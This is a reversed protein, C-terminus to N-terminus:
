ASPQHSGGGGTPSSFISEPKSAQKLPEAPNGPAARRPRRIGSPSVRPVPPKLLTSASPCAPEMSPAQSDAPMQPKAVARIGRQAILTQALDATGEQDGRCPLILVNGCGEVIETAKQMGHTYALEVFSQFSLVCRGGTRHLGALAERMGHTCGLVELEPVVLWLRQDGAPLALAEQLALSMWARILPMWREEGSGSLILLDGKPIGAQPGQRVWQRISFPDGAQGATHALLELVHGATELIATYAAPDKELLRAASTDALVAKLDAVSTDRLAQLLTQEDRVGARYFRRTRGSLAISAPENWCRDRRNQAPLLAQFFPEIDRDEEIEALMSWRRGESQRPNLLLKTCQLGRLHSSHGGTADAIVLRDGRALVATFLTYLVLHRQSLTGGLILSHRMEDSLFLPMGGLPIGDAPAPGCRSPLSLTPPGARLVCPHLSPRSGAPRSPFDSSAPVVRGSPRGDHADEPSPAIDQAPECRPPLPCGPGDPQWTHPPQSTAAGAPWPPVRFSAPVTHAVTRGGDAEASSTLLQVLDDLIRLMKVFLVVAAVATLVMTLLFEGVLSELSHPSSDASPHPM